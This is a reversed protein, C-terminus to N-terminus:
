NGFGKFDDSPPFCALAEGHRSSCLHRTLLEVLHEGGELRAEDVELLLLGHCVGEKLLHKAM